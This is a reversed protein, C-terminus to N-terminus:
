EEGGNQFHKKYEKPFQCRLAIKLDEYIQVIRNAQPETLNDYKYHYNLCGVLFEILDEEDPHLSQIMWVLDNRFSFTGKKPPLACQYIIRM